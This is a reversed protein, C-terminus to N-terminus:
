ADYASLRTPKQQLNLRQFYCRHNIKLLNTNIISPNKLALRRYYTIKIM